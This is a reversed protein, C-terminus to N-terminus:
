FGIMYGLEPSLVTGSTPLMYSFKVDLVLGQRATFAYMAGLGLGMFGQGAKHWADVKQAVPNDQVFGGNTDTQTCVGTQCGDGYKTTDEQVSVRVKTDVQAFGGALFAFPRLGPKSFPDRLFWYSLRGEAHLPLFANGHEPQPGGNFAWGLRVGFTLNKFLVRDYSALVRTTAPAIGGQIANGRGSAIPNGHYQDSGTFQSVVEADRFCAYGANNQSEIGCVDDGSILALDQVVHLGIWNKKIPGAAPTGDGGEEGEGAGEECTGEDKGPDRKCYMGCQCEKSRECTAGWGKNGCERASKCGPFDPPCENKAQCKAPPAASPLHPPDGEIQNKIKTVLPKDRKGVEAVTDGTDDVAKVYYKLDGTTGVEDCPIMGSWGNGSKKLELKKWETGGFGRYMVIMKVVKMGEPPEAYIPVPTNVPSEPVPPHTLEGGGEAPAGSSGAAAPTAAATPSSAKKKAESFAKEIEPTTFDGEPAASAETKIAEIFSKEGDAVKTLNVQIIGLHILIQAKIKATCGSDGCTKVADTLKKEAADFNANLFDNDMAEKDLKKAAADKPAAFASQSLAVFLFLTASAIAALRSRRHV